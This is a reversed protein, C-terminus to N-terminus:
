DIVYGAHLFKVAATVVVAAPILIILIFEALQLLKAIRAKM